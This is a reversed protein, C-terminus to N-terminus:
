AFPFLDAGGALAADMLALNASARPDATGLALYGWRLRRIALYIVTAQMGWATRLRDGGVRNGFWRLVLQRKWEQDRQSHIWLWALDHDVNGIGVQEFDILFPRGEGDVLVNPETFDGHVLVPPRTDIWRMAETFFAQVQRWRREGMVPLAPEYMLRIRELYGVPSWQNLPFDRRGMLRETPLAQLRQLVTFVQDQGLAEQVPGPAPEIWELLLWSPPDGPGILITRPAPLERRDPDISDLLRYFAAERRAYDDPRTGVPHVTDAPKQVYLKLLFSKGDPGKCPLPLSSAHGSVPATRVDTREELGLEDLIPKALKRPDDDYM